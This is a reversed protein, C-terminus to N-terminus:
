AQHSRSNVVQRVLDALAASDEARILRTAPPPSAAM